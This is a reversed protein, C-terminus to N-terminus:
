SGQKLHFTCVAMVSEQEVTCSTVEAAGVGSGKVAAPM